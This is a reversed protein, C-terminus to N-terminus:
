RQHLAVLSAGGALTAFILAISAAGADIHGVAKGQQYRARGAKAELLRTVEMGDEAARSALGLAESPDLGEEAAHGLVHVAPSLADIMTKDGEKVNGRKKAAELGAAFMLYMDQPEVELAGNAREGAASFLSGFVMGTVGGVNEVFARGMIRFLDGIDAPSRENVSKQAESFGLLMSTGHDGDGAAGDYECLRIENEAFAKGLQRLSEVWFKLDLAKM